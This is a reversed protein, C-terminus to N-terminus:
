GGGPGDSIKSVGYTCHSSGTWYTFGSNDVTHALVPSVAGLLAGLAISLVFLLPSSKRM